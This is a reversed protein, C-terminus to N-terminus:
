HLQVRIAQVVKHDNVRDQNIYIVFELLLVTFVYSVRM